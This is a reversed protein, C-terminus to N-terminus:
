LGLKFNRQVLRPWAVRWQIAIGVSREDRLAVVAACGHGRNVTAIVKDCRQAHQARANICKSAPQRVGGHEVRRVAERCHRLKTDSTNIARM